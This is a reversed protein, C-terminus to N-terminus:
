PRSGRRAPPDRPITVELQTGMGAASEIRLAGGVLELRERLGQLGYGGQRGPSPAVVRGPEFGRGDDAIRLTALAEGFRVAVEASRAGAHKQVNTLGEQAARFLTVLAQQSYGEESGEVRMAVAVPGGQVREILEHLEPLFIFVDEGARLAGVSRRVEQLAESALRKAARVAQDAEAADRERFVLAKELQVNIITLFHGLSDHIERALRNREKATALEEVQEAYARLRGHAEELQRHAEELAALLREGRTRTAKERVLVQVLSLTFVVALAFIVDFQFNQPDSLWFENTVVQHLAYDAVALVGLGYGAWRGFYWFGLVPLFLTILVSYRYFDAAAFAEYVGVRAVFLAIAIRRPTEEGFLWFELRDLAFLAAICVPIVAMRWVDARCGCDVYEGRFFDILSGALAGLYFASSVVFFPRPALWRLWARPGDGRRGSLTSAPTDPSMTQMAQNTNMTAGLAPYVDRRGGLLPPIARRPLVARRALILPM